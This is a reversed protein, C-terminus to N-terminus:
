ENHWEIRVEASHKTYLEVSTSLFSETEVICAFIRLMAM